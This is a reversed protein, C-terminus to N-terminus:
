KQLTYRDLDHWPYQRVGCTCYQIHDPQYYCTPVTPKNYNSQQAYIEQAVDELDTPINNFKDIFRDLPTDNSKFVKRNTKKPNKKM